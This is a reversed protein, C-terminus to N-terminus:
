ASARVRTAVPPLRTAVRRPTVSDPHAPRGFGIPVTTPGLYAEPSRELFTRTTDLVRYCPASGCCHAEVLSKDVLSALTQARLALHDSGKTAGLRSSEISFTGNVRALRHLATRESESLLEYSWELSAGFTLQRTPATRWARWHLWHPGDLQALVGKTGYAGVRGAAVELALPIGDLRRCIRGITCANEDTLEARHGSAAVSRVFLQVAPLQLATAATLEDPEQPCDLPGLRYVLEGRVGLPERSTALVHVQPHRCLINQVAGAVAETVHECNDLILLVRPGDTRSSVQMASSGGRPPRVTAAVTEAVLSASTLMSLDVFRVGNEFQALLAHALAVAVTTKGVGGGGVISVFRELRLMAEVEAFTQERGLVGGAGLPPLASPRIESEMAASQEDAPSVPAVFCYGRGAVNVVYRCGAQGDGLARRLVGIQFRLNGEEVVMGPWVRALLERKGVVRPASDILAILLDMPRSGLTVPTGNRELVRQRGDLRFPGFQSVAANMM